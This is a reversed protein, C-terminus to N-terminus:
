KKLLDKIVESAIIMGAVSPVFVISSIVNNQSKLPTEKSYVVKLHYIGRKRLEQRMVKALPCISTKSIDEVQLMTPEIKNGTGMCSIIPVMIKKALEALGIKATVTDVADVIYSYSSDIPITTNNPIYLEQFTSIKIEPNIDILRQKMVEVKSYGVTKTTAHIQRNCNTVNIVDKDVLMLEGIGARALGEAVFSGVGGIGFVAVKAMHLKELNDAGILEETRSFITEM